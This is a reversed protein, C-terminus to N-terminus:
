NSAKVKDLELGKATLMLIPVRLGEARIQRCVDYGNLGPLMVDLIVLTPKEKRVGALAQDGRSCAVVHFGEGTFLERLGLQINADDEVILLTPKM